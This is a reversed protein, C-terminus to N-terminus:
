GSIEHALIFPKPPVTDSRGYMQSYQSAQGPRYRTSSGSGVPLIRGEDTLRALWRQLTRSGISRGTREGFLAELEPRSIGKDHEAVLSEVLQLNENSVQRPM